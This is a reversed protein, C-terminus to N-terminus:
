RLSLDELTFGHRGCEIMLADYERRYGHEDISGEMRREELAAFSTKIAEVALGRKDAARQRLSRTMGASVGAIVGLLVVLKVV